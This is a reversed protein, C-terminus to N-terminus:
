TTAVMPRRAIVGFTGFATGPCTSSIPVTRVVTNKMGCEWKVRVNRLRENEKDSSAVTPFRDGRKRVTVEQNAQADAVREALSLRGGPELCQRSEATVLRTNM